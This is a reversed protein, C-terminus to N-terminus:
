LLVEGAPFVPGDKCVKMWRGDKESERCTCGNCAGTGCGMQSELSVELPLGAHEAIDRVARLMPVPGCASASDFKGERMLRQVPGTVFGAEGLSGDETAIVCGTVLMDSEMLCARDKAGAVLVAEGGLREIEDKLFLLPAIGTGGGVLLHRGVGVSFGRGFPGSVQLEDGPRRESLWLTGKGAVAFRLILLGDGRVVGSVGLPRRLIAGACGTGVMVFQGPKAEMAIEPVRLAMRKMGYAIDGVETVLARDISAASM